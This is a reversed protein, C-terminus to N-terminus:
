DLQASHNFRFHRVGFWVPANEPVLHDVVEQIDSEGIRLVPKILDRRVKSFAAIRGLLPLVQIPNAVNDLADGRSPAFRRAPERNRTV